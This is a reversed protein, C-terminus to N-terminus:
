NLESSIWNWRSSSGTALIFSNSLIGKKFVLLFIEFKRVMFVEDENTENGFRHLPSGDSLGLIFDYLENLM